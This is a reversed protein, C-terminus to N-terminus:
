PILKLSLPPADTLSSPGFFQLPGPFRYDDNLAWSSRHAAFYCFPPSSLDVLKKQIVPKELGKRMEIHLLSSLPVGGVGWESPPRDLRDISCLYGSHGQAILSSASLGLAYSYNADFNSPFGARGEYGLFHPVPSFKAKSGRKKLARHTLEILLRETEVFSLQVNGHPDRNFCLQNRMEEPLLSFSQQSPFSLQGLVEQPVLERHSTALQNLEQILTAIEPIFEIVGEPILIVGYEKEMLSRTSILDALEDVVTSLTKQGLRLEEGILALNPHTYLACELTVHSASRGMLKVFHTYKKASLADRCLNGITEAYTKCATDFGFSTAIYENQLDGDITKPVGIVKTACGNQAFFEALVAANTNSDDGGVIVLGDLSVKKMTQAVLELQEKTEIKTRGSGIADFGGQNRYLDIKEKELRLVRGEVIGSPGGLFGFLQSHPHLQLLGDYLGTMVNHGGPAQGGSFVMGVKLAGGAWKKGKEGQLLPIGSTNPFARSILDQKKSSLPVKKWNIFSLDSLISPISPLYELRSEKLGM